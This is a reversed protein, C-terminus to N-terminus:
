LSDTQNSFCSQRWRRSGERFSINLVTNERFLRLEAEVVVDDPDEIGLGVDLEVKDKRVAISALDSGFPRHDFKHKRVKSEFDM